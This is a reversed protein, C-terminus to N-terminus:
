GNLNRRVGRSPKKSSTWYTLGEEFCTAGLDEAKMLLFNRADDIGQNYAFPALEQTFYELLFGAQMESIELDLEKSLYRQISYIADVKEEPTQQLKM